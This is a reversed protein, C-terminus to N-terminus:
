SRRRLKPLQPSVINGAGFRKRTPHAPIFADTLELHGASGSFLALLRRAAVELRSPFHGRWGHGWGAWFGPRAVVGPQGDRSQRVNADV